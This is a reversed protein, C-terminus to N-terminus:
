GPTTGVAALAGRAVPPKDALANSEFWDPLAAVKPLGSALPLGPQHYYKRHRLFVSGFWRSFNVPAAM